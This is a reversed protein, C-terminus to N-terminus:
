DRETLHQRRSLPAHTLVLGRPELIFCMLIDCRFSRSGHLRALRLLLRFSGEIKPQVATQMLQEIVHRALWNGLVQQPDDLFVAVSLHVPARPQQAPRFLPLFPDLRFEGPQRVASPPRGSNCRRNTAISPHARCFGCAASRSCATHAAPSLGHDGSQAWVRDNGVQAVIGSPSRASRHRV